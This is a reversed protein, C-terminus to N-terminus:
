EREKNRKRQQMINADHFKKQDFEKFLEIIKENNERISHIGTEFIDTSKAYTYYDGLNLDFPNYEELKNRNAADVLIWKGNIFCECFHHGSISYLKNRAQLDRICNKRVTQVHITPIGKNRAIAEFVLTFDSCGTFFGSKIIESATRSFKIKQNERDHRLNRNVYEYIRVIDIISGQNANVKDAFQSIVEDIQTQEGAQLFIEEENEKYTLNQFYGKFM